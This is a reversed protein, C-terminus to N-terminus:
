AMEMGQVRCDVPNCCAHVMYIAFMPLFCQKVFIPKNISLNIAIIFMTRGTKITKMPMALFTIRQRELFAGSTREFVDIEVNSIKSFYAVAHSFGFRGL